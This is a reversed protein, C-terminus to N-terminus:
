RMRNVQRSKRAMKNRIRRQKTAKARRRESAVIINTRKKHRNMIPRAVLGGFTRM